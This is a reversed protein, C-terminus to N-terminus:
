AGRNAYPQCLISVVSAAAVESRSVAGPQADAWAVIRVEITERSDSPSHAFRLLFGTSSSAGSRHTYYARLPRGQYLVEVMDHGRRPRMWRVLDLTDQTLNRTARKFMDITDQTLRGLM